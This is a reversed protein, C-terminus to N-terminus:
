PEEGDEQQQPFWWSKSPDYFSCEDIKHGTQMCWGAFATDMFPYVGEMTSQLTLTSGDKLALEIVTSGGTVVYLKQSLIECFRHERAKRGFRCLLFSEGDYFIGFSLYHVALAAGMLLVIGGCYLLLKEGRIGSVIGLIGLVSLVVGFVGYRKNARVALGSRHQAKSRFFRAFLKDVLWCVLFVLAAVILIGLAQM